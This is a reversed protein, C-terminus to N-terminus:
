AQLVKRYKEADWDLLEQIQGINLLRLSVGEEQRTIVDFYCRLQTLKQKDFGDRAFVGANEIIILEPLEEPAANKARFDDWSTFCSAVPGLFVVHDPYIAWYKKVLDLLKPELALRHLEADPVQAYPAAALSPAPVTAPNDVPCKLASLVSELLSQADTVTNAGLVIGHSRMFIVNAGPNEAVCKKVATALDAGPKFYDVFGWKIDAPMLSRIIQEADERVLRALAEVAHLHIVIPAPLLAHLTTEISPRFGSDSVVRPKVSFDDQEIASRLHALDVPIFIEKEKAHALWTGSAKIWLVNGEKWSVNGGAGQILLRDAGMEACYARVDQGIDTQAVTM